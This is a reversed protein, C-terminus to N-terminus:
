GVDITQFGYGTEAQACVSNAIQGDTEQVLLPRGSPLGLLSTKM